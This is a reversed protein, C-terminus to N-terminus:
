TGGTIFGTLSTIEESITCFWVSASRSDKFFTFMKLVLTKVKEDESGEDGLTIPESALSPVHLLVVKSDSGSSLILEDRLNYRM